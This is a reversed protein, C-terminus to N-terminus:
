RRNQPLLSAAPPQPVDADVTHTEPDCGAPFSRACNQCRMDTGKLIADVHHRERCFPCISRILMKSGMMRLSGLQMPAPAAPQPEPAPEAVPEATAQVPPAQVPPAELVFRQDCVCCQAKKGIWAEEGELVTECKPCVFDMAEGLIKTYVVRVSLYAHVPM